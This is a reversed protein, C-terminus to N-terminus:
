ESVEGFVELEDANTRPCASTTVVFDDVGLQEAIPAGDMVGFTDGVQFLIGEVARSGVSDTVTGNVLRFGGGDLLFRIQAWEDRDVEGDEQEAYCPRWTGSGDVLYTYWGPRNKPYGLGKWSYDIRNPGPAPCVELIREGIVDTESSEYRFRASGWAPKLVEILPCHGDSGPVIQQRDGVRGCSYDGCYFGTPVRKRQFVAGHSNGPKQWFLDVFEGVSISFTSVTSGYENGAILSVGTEGDKIPHIRLGAGVVEVGAVEEDGVETYIALPVWEAAEFVGELDMTVANGVTLYQTPIRRSIVPVTAPFDDCSFSVETAEPLQLLELLEASLRAEPAYTNGFRFGDIVESASATATVGCYIPYDDATYTSPFTSLGHERGGRRPCVQVHGVTGESSYAYDFGLSNEHTVCTSKSFTCYVDNLNTRRSPVIRLDIEGAGENGCIKTGCRTGLPVGFGGMPFCRYNWDSIRTGLTPKVVVHFTLSASLGSPDSATLTFTAAGAAEGWICFASYRGQDDSFYSLRATAVDPAGSEMTLALADGDPDSFLTELVGPWLARGFCAATAAGGRHFVTRDPLSGVVVPARNRLRPDPDDADPIGDGDDDPDTEDGQGDGDLDAASLPDLPLDDALNAVGDGDDDAEEDAGDQVKIRETRCVGDAAGDAVLLEVRKGAVLALRSSALMRDGVLAGTGEAPCDFAVWDGECDLGAAALSADVRVMCRAGESDSPVATELVRADVTASAASAAQTLYVSVCCGIAVAQLAAWRPRPM